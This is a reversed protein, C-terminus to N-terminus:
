REAFGEMGLQWGLFTFEDALMQALQSKDSGLTHGAEFDVRLLIPRDSATAAQLRAAMKALQWPPVRPDNIGTELMVAPYQVGKRVNAYPSLAHLARFEAEDTVTGYEMINAPGGGSFEIRLLDTVGVRILAAALLDPRQTVLGGSPIGGASTGSIAMHQPSSWGNAILWQAAAIVDDVVRQKRVRRAAEHWAQGKEGGGRAHVLAIIGGREYWALDTATFSLQMSSGYSGYARMLLPNRGDLELDRRGILTVPVQAGGTSPVEVRHAVIGSYDAPHPPQLGTDVISGTDPEYVYVRPSVVPSQMVFAIDTTEESAMFGMLAGEVPLPLRSSGGGDRPFRRVVSQGDQQGIVYLADQAVALNGLVVAEQPLWQTAEALTGDRIDFRLVRGNPANRASIVYAHDDVIDLGSVQDAYGAVQRWQLEAASMDAVWMAASRDTGRTHSAVLYRGDPTAYMSPFGAVPDIDLEAHVGPGFIPTDQEVPTGLKHFFIRINDYKATVPTDPSVDQQRPYYFGSRDPAWEAMPSAIRPVVDPLLRGSATDAVRFLWNEDGAVSMAFAVLSGDGAPEYTDISVRTKGPALKAADALVRRAQGNVARAILQRSDGGQPTQLFFYWQGARSLYQMSPTGAQLQGIRELLAQRVKGSGPRALEARTYANQARMWQLLQPNDAAEMWRYPDVVTTGHYTDSVPQVRAAPPQPPEAAGCILPICILVTRTITKM